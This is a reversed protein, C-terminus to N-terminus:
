PAQRAVAETDASPTHPNELIEAYTQWNQKSWLPRAVRGYVPVRSERQAMRKCEGLDQEKQPIEMATCVAGYRCSDIFPFWAMIKELDRKDLWGVKFEVLCLFEMESKKTHDGKFIVLDARREGCQTIYKPPAPAYPTSPQNSRRRTSDQNWNWLKTSNTESTMTLVDGLEMLVYSALLHEPPLEGGSIADYKEMASAFQDCVRTITEVINDELKM